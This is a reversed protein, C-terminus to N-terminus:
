FIMKWKKGDKITLKEGNIVILYVFPSTYEIRVKMEQKVLMVGKSILKDQMFSLNKEQTFQSKLTKTSSHKSQIQKKFAVLDKIQTFNSEQANITFYSFLFLLQIIIKM